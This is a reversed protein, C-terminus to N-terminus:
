AIVFPPPRPPHYIGPSAALFRYGGLRPFARVMPGTLQFIDSYFIIGPYRGAAKPAAVFMRMPSPGAPIDVYETTVLMNHFSVGNAPSVPAPQRGQSLLFLKM